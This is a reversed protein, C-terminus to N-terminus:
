DPTLVPEAAVGTEPAHLPNARQSTSAPEGTPTTRGRLIGLGAPLLPHVTLKWLYVKNRLHVLGHMRVQALLKSVPPVITLSAGRSAPCSM